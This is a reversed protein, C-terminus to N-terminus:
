KKGNAKHNFIFHFYNYNYTKSKMNSSIYWFFFIGIMILSARIGIVFLHCFGRSIVTFFLLFGCSFYETLHLCFISPIGAYRLAHLRCQKKNPQSKKKRNKLHWSIFHDNLFQHWIPKKIEFRYCVIAILLVHLVCFWDISFENMSCMAVIVDFEFWYHIYGFRILVYCVGTQAYPFTLTFLINKTQNHIRDHYM